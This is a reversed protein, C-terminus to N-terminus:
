LKQVHRTISKEHILYLYDYRLFNDIFVTFYQEINWAATPSSRCIDTYILELVDLTKNAEFIKKNIQKGRICNVCNHLDTFDLPDLIETSVLREIRQRSIHGLGKYWLVISNEGTLRGKVGRTSLQMSENFSTIIDISYFNNYTSLSGTGDLKSDHFLSFKKDGFSFFLWLQGLYFYFDFEM